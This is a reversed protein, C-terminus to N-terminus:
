KILKTKDASSRTTGTWYSVSQLWATTLSGLLMYLTNENSEPVVDTFLFYVVVAILVTLMYVLVTPTNSNKHNSRASDRDEVELAFVDVDLKKMGLKFDVDLQKINALQEPSAGIVAAEISEISANEDGLLENALFKTAAGALPGGLATALTPAIAALTDKWSM